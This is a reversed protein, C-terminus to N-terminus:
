KLNQRIERISYKSDSPTYDGMVECLPNLVFERKSYLKHPITLLDSQLKINDYFIIDIDMCRSQYTTKGQERLNLKEIESREDGREKGFRQEIAWIAFLLDKPTLPTECVLVQNLFTKDSDFGWAESSHITSKKIVRGINSEIFCVVERMSQERNGLNCGTLLTVIM